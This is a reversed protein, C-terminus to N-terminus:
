MFGDTVLIKNQSFIRALLPLRIASSSDNLAKVDFRYVNEKAHIHCHPLHFVYGETQGKTKLLLCPQCSHFLRSLETKPPFFILFALLAENKLIQPPTHSM